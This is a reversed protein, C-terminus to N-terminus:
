NQTRKVSVDFNRDFNSQDGLGVLNYGKYLVINNLNSNEMSDYSSKLFMTTFSVFLHTSVPAPSSGHM